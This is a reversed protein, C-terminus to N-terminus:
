CGLKAIRYAKGQGYVVRYRDGNNAVCIPSQVLYAQKGPMDCVCVVEGGVYKAKAIASAQKKYPRMNDGKQNLLKNASNSCYSEASILEDLINRLNRAMCRGYTDARLVADDCIEAIADILKAQAFKLGVLKRALEPIDYAGQM